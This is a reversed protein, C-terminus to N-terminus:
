LSAFALVEPNTSALAAGFIAQRDAEPLQRRALSELAAAAELSSPDKTVIRRCVERASDSHMRGLCKMVETRVMPHDFSQLIDLVQKLDADTGVRSLSDL